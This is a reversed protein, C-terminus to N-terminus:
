ELTKRVDILQQREARAKALEATLTENRQKAESSEHRAESLAREYYRIKGHVEVLQSLLDAKQGEKEHNEKIREAVWQQVEKRVAQEDKGSEALSRLYTGGGAEAFLAKNSFAILNEVQTKRGPDTQYAPDRLADVLMAFRNIAKEEEIAKDAITTMIEAKANAVRDEDDLEAQTFKGAEKLSEFVEEAIKTDATGYNFVLETPYYGDESGRKGAPIAGAKERLTALAQQFKAVQEPGGDIQVTFEDGGYRFAKGEVGSDDIAQEMLDAAVKLADNGVEPGGKNDFYRLFGMDVFVMQAEKGEKFAKELNEYHVGRELLGTGRDRKASEIQADLRLLEADPSGAKEADAAKGELGALVQQGRTREPVKALPVVGRDSLAFEAHPKEKEEGRIEKLRGDIIARKADELSKADALFKSAHEFAMREKDEESLAEFKSLDELETGQFMKKMYNDYFARAGEVGGSRVKEQVRGVRSMFKDIDLSYDARRRMVDIVERAAAGPESTDIREDPGLELQLQNVIDIAEQMDFGDAVLPAGEDVGEVKPQAERVSRMIDEFDEKSIDNFSVMFENGRYRLMTYGPDDKRKDGIKALIAAEITRVTEKLAADGAAHGGGEKNIRDLEGMNVFMMRRNKEGEALTLKGTEKDTEIARPKDPTDEFMGMMERGFRKFKFAGANDHENAFLELRKEALQLDLAKERDAPSHEADTRAEAVMGELADLEKSGAVGFDGRRSSPPAQEEQPQEAPRPM